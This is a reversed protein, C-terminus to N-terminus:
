KGKDGAGTPRAGLGAKWAAVWVHPSPRQRHKTVTGCTRASGLCLHCGLYAGPLKIQAQGGPPSALKMKALSKSSPRTVSPAAQRGRPGPFRRPFPEKWSTCAPRAARPPQRPVGSPLPAWPPAGWGAAGGPGGEGRACSTSRPAPPRCAEEPALGPGWPPRPRPTLLAARPPRPCTPVQLPAPWTQTQTQTPVPRDGDGCSSSARHM